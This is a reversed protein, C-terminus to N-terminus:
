FTSLRVPPFSIFRAIPIKIADTAATDTKTAPHELFAAGAAGAGAGAATSFGTTAM